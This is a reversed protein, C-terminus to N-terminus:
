TEEEDAYTILPKQWTFNRGAATSIGSSVMFLQNDNPDILLQNDCSEDSNTNFNGMQIFGSAFTELNTDFVILETIDTKPIIFYLRGARHALNRVGYDNLGPYSRYPIPYTTVADTTANIRFVLSGYTPPTNISFSSYPVATIGYIDGNDAQVMCFCVHGESDPITIETDTYSDINLKTVYMEASNNSNCDGNGIYFNDGVVLFKKCGEYDSHGSITSTSYVDSQINTSRLVKHVYGNGAGAQLKGSLHYHSDTVYLGTIRDLSTGLTLSATSDVTFTGLDIKHVKPSTGNREAVYMFDPVALQSEPYLATLLNGASVTLTDYEGTELDYRHLKDDQNHGTDVLFYLKSGYIRMTLICHPAHQGVYVTSGIGAANQRIQSIVYEGTTQTNANPAISPDGINTGSICLVKFAVLPKTSRVDIFEDDISEIYVDGVIPLVIQPKPSMSHRIRFRTDPQEETTGSHIQIRFNDMSMGGNLVERIATFNSHTTVESVPKISAKTM